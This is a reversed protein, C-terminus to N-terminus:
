SCVKPSPGPCKVCTRISSTQVTNSFQNDLNTPFISASTTLYFEIKETRVVLNRKFYFTSQEWNRTSKYSEKSLMIVLNLILKM